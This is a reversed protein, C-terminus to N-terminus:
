QAAFMGAVWGTSFAKQLNYGGTPGDLCILEGAFYLGAVKKSEMTKSNIQATDVGGHTVIARKISEVGAIEFEFSKLFGILTNIQVPTLTSNQHHKSIKTITIAVPVMLKPLLTALMSQYEKKPATQIEQQIRKRLTAKDLRPKLDIQAMITKGLSLQEFVKWSSQLVIPGSIGNHTFLMEGFVKAFEEENALFSLEVNKLSLGALSIVNANDAILPTLAPQPKITTHGFTKAFKYGDGTSGTQPYSKGGTAIILKEALIIERKSAIQFYQDKKIIKKVNFGFIIRANKKKLERALCYLITASRDTKPFVRDGREVKLEVGRKEFFDMLDQNSFRSLAGSLFRGRKGFAAIIDSINKSSTVNCRGKGTLLLKKGLTTNKELICVKNNKNKTKASIGAMMGAPGAGIVAIDFINKM